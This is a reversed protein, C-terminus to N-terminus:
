NGGALGGSALEEAREAATKTIKLTGDPLRVYIRGAKSVRTMLSGAATPEKNKNLQAAAWQAPGNAPLWNLVSGDELSYKTGCAPCGIVMAGDEKTVQGKIMPFQCARCSGDTCFVTSDEGVGDDGRILTWIYNQGQPSQGAEVALTDGMASGLDDKNAVLTWESRQFDKKQLRSKVSTQMGAAPRVAKGPMGRSGKGKM